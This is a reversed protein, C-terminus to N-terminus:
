KLAPLYIAGIKQALDQMEAPRVNTLVYISLKQEPYRVSGSIFGNLSGGHGVYKAGLTEGLQWGLGYSSTTGDNLRMPTWAQQRTAAKLPYDTALAADWKALDITNSLLAGSPRVALLPQANTHRGDRWEYGSVRHMVLDDHTTLRTSTMALPEFIRARLFEPWPQGAVRTIVEALTFYGLNCYQYKTGTPFDLPLKFAARIVDWDSKRRFGDFGPSERTLGSTHTLLHRLTIKNWAGPTDPLHKSVLDDLGLKGEQMLMLIGTAIFQKSISGIRYVSEVGAPTMSELNAWGYAQMKLPRGDRLVVLSVSPLHQRDMEQKVLRDVEEEVGPAAILTGTLLWAAWFSRMRKGTYM